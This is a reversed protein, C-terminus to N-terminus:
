YVLWDILYGAVVAVIFVNIAFALVLKKKFMSGLIILEPISAGAGGIILALVTGLVIGKGILYASIPIV